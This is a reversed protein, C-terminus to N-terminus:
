IWEPEATQVFLVGSHHLPQVLEAKALLALACLSDDQTRGMNLAEDYPIGQKAPLAAAYIREAIPAVEYSPWVIRQLHRIGWFLFRPAVFLMESIGFAAQEARFIEASVVDQALLLEGRAFPSRPPMRGAYRYGGHLLAALFIADWAYAWDYHGIGFACLVLLAVCHWMVLYLAGLALGAIVGLIGLALRLLGM